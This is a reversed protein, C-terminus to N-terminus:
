GEVLETHTNVTHRDATVELTDCGLEPFSEVVCVSVHALRSESSVPVCVWEWASLVFVCMSLYPFLSIGLPVMHLFLCDCDCMSKPKWKSVALKKIHVNGCVKLREYWQDFCKLGYVVEYITTKLLRPLKM